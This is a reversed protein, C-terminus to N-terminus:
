SWSALDDAMEMWGWVGDVMVLSRRHRWPTPQDGAVPADLLVEGVAQPDNLVRDTRVQPTPSSWSRGRWGDADVDITDPGVLLDGVVRCRQSAGDPRDVAYWEMDLGLPVLVGRAPPELAEAPDDLTVGFAELGVTWREWPQECVHHAWMGSNRFELSRTPERMPIADDVAIMPQREFGTVAFSYHALGLAPYHRFELWGFADSAPACFEFWWRDVPASPDPRELDLAVDSM